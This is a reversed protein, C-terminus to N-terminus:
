VELDIIIEFTEDPKGQKVRERRINEKFEEVEEAVYEEARARAKHQEGEAYTAEYIESWYGYQDDGLLAKAIRGRWKTGAEVIRPRWLFVWTELTWRENNKDWRLRFSFKGVYKM